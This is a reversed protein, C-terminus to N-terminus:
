GGCGGVTVKVQKTTKHLVGNADEVILMVDGTKRMKIRTSFKPITGEQVEWAAVLPHPNGAVVIAMTKVNDLDSSVTVPVAAGNEAIDPVKLNAKGDNVSDTKGYLNKIAGDVTKDEFAAPHEKLINANAAVSFAVASFSLGLFKRREM